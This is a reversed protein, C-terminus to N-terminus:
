IEMVSLIGPVPIRLAIAQNCCDDSQSFIGLMNSKEPHLRFVRLDSPANMKMAVRSNENTVAPAEGSLSFCEEVRSPPVMRISGDPTEKWTGYICIPRWECVFSLM